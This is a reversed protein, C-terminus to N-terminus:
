NKGKFYILADHLSDLREADMNKVQINLSTAMSDIDGKPDNYTQVIIDDAITKLQLTGATTTGLYGMDNFRHLHFSYYEQKGNTYTKRLRIFANDTVSLEWKKLKADGDANYAQTLCKNSWTLWQQEDMAYTFCLSASGLAAISVILFHKKLGMRVFKLM